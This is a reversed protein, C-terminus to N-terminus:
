LDLRLHSSCPPRPTWKQSAVLLPTGGGQMAIEKDAGADCLLCVVELHGSQSAIFLFTAGGQLAIDKDAGADSLRCVVEQHGQQSAVLLPTAGGQLTIDQGAGADSCHSTRAMSTRAMFLAIRHGQRRRAQGQMFVVFVVFFMSKTTKTTKLFVSFVSFVSCLSFLSFLSFVCYPWLHLAIYWWEWRCFSLIVDLFAHSPQVRPLHSYQFPINKKPPPSLM